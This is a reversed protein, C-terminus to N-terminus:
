CLTEGHAGASREAGEAQMRRTGIEVALSALTACDEDILGAEFLRWIADKVM